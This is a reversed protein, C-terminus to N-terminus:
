DKSFDIGVLKAGDYEHWTEIGVNIRARIAIRIWKDVNETHKVIEKLHKREIMFSSSGEGTDMKGVYPNIDNFSLPEAHQFKDMKVVKNAQIKLGLEIAQNMWEEIAIGEREVRSKLLPPVEFKREKM